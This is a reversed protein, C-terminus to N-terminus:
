ASSGEETTPADTTPADTTAAGLASLMEVFDVPPSFELGEDTARSSLATWTGDRWWLLNPSIPGPGDSALRLAFPLMANIADVVGLDRIVHAAFTHRRPIAVLIGHPAALAADTDLHHALVAALDSVKSAVFFSSGAFAHLEAKGVMSVDHREIIDAERVNEWARQWLETPDAHADLHELDDPTVTRILTPLEVVLCAWIGPAFETWFPTDLAEPPMSGAAMLRVRLHQPGVPENLSDAMEEFHAELAEDWTAIDRDALRKALPLLSYVIGDSSDLRGPGGFHVDLGAMRAQVLATECFREWHEAPFFAFEASQPPTTTPEFNAAM